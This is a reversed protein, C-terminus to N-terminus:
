LAPYNVSNSRHSEPAQDTWREQNLWTAPHLNKRWEWSDTDEFRERDARTLRILYEAVESPRQLKNKRLRREFALFAAAKGTHNWYVGYWREFEARVVGEVSPEPPTLALEPSGFPPNDISELRDIIELALRLHERAESLESPM